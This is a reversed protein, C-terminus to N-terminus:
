IKLFLYPTIEYVKCLAILLDLPLDYDGQEIRILLTASIKIIKAVAELEKKQAERLSQLKNGVAKLFQKSELEHRMVTPM